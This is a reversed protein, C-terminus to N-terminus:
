DSNKNRFETAEKIKFFTPADKEYYLINLIVIM